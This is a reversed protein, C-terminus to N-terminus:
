PGPPTFPAVYGKVEGDPGSEAAILAVEYPEGAQLPVPSVDVTAGPLREGYALCAGQSRAVPRSFTTQWVTHGQGDGVQIQRLWYTGQAGPEGPAENPKIAFCAQGDPYTVRAVGSFQRQPTCATCCLGVVALAALAHGPRM